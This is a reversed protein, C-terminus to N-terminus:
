EIRVGWVREIVRGDDWGVSGGKILHLVKVEKVIV